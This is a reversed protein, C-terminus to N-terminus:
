RVGGGSNTPNFEQRRCKKIRMSEENGRFLYSIHYCNTLAVCENCCVSSERHRKGNRTLFLLVKFTIDYEKSKNM